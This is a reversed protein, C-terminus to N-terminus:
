ARVKVFANAQPDAALGTDPYGKGQAVQAM